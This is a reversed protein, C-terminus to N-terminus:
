FRFLRTCTSDQDYNVFPPFNKEYWFTAPPATALSGFLKMNRKRREPSFQPQSSGDIFFDSICSSCSLTSLWCSSTLGERRSTFTLLCGYDFPGYIDSAAYKQWLFHRFNDFAAASPILSLARIKNSGAMTYHIINCSHVAGLMMCVANDKSGPWIVNRYDSIALEAPPFNSPNVFPLLAKFNLAAM